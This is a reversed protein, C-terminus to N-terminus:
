YGRRFRVFTQTDEVFARPEDQRPQQPQRPSILVLFISICPGGGSTLSLFSPALRSCRQVRPDLLSSRVFCMGCAATREENM